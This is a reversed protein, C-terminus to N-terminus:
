LSLDVEAAEESKELQRAEEFAAEAQRAAAERRAERADSDPRPEPRAEPEPETANPPEPANPPADAVEAPEPEVSAIDAEIQAAVDLYAEPPDFIVRSARQLPTEEFSPPPGTPGDGTPPVRASREANEQDRLRPAVASQRSPDVAMTTEARVKAPAAVGASAKSQSAVAADAKAQSANATPTQGGQAVPLATTAAPIM